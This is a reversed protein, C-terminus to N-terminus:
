RKRFLDILREVAADLPCSECSSGSHRDLHREYKTRSVFVADCKECYIKSTDQRDKM